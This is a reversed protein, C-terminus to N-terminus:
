VAAPLRGWIDDYESHHAPMLHLKDSWGSCIWYKLEEKGSGVSGLSKQFRGTLPTDLECILDLGHLDYYDKFLMLWVGDPITVNYEGRPGLGRLMDEIVGLVNREFYPVRDPEPHDARSPAVWYQILIHVTQINQCAEPISQCLRNLIKDEEQEATPQQWLEKTLPHQDLYLEHDGFPLELSTIQQLLHPYVLKPLNLLLDTGSIHFTSTSFLAELGEICASRCSLLWSMIGIFCPDGECESYEGPEPNCGCLQGKLCEDDYLGITNSIKWWYKKREAVTWDTRRHCVCGLWQWGKPQSEDPILESGIGGHRSGEPSISSSGALSRRVLPHGFSLDIHITRHGFAEALILLRIESPLRHFLGYAIGSPKLTELIGDKTTLVPLPIDPVPRSEPARRSPKPKPAVEVPKPFVKRFLKHVPNPM